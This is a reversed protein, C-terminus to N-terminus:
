MKDDCLFCKLFHAMLSCLFFVGNQARELVNVLLAVLLFICSFYVSLVCSYVCFSFGGFWSRKLHWLRAM